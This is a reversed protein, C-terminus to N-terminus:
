IRDVSANERYGFITNGPKDFLWECRDGFRSTQGLLDYYLAQACHELGTHHPPYSLGQHGGVECWSRKDGPSHGGFLEVGGEVVHGSIIWERPM